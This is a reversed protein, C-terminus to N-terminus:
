GITASSTSSCRRPWRMANLVRTSPTEVPRSKPNSVDGMSPRICAVAMVSQIAALLRAANFSAKWTKPCRAAYSTSSARSAIAATLGSTSITSAFQQPAAAMASAPDNGQTDNQGNMGKM